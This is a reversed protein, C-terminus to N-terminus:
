KKGGGDYVPNGYISQQGLISLDRNCIREGMGQNDGSIFSNNDPTIHTGKKELIDVGKGGGGVEETTPSEFGDRLWKEAGHFNVRKDPAKLWLGWERKVESEDTFKFLEECFRNTHRLRGCIFCFSNLREYKFTVTFSEGNPQRVKVWRKLPQNVDVEVRIRIYPRWVAVCNSKDYGIFKGVFNDLLRGVTETTYGLPLDFVHVWFPIASLPVKMPHDRKLDIPHFFQFLFRGEGVEKVVVGKQPRWVTAMRVKMATFNIPQDSLFRGVLCNDVSNTSVDSVNQTLILEEEEDVALSMKDFLSEM